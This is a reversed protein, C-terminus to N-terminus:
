AVVRADRISDQFGKRELSLALTCKIKDGFKCTLLKREAETVNQGGRNVTVGVIQGNSALDYKVFDYAKGSSKSKGAVERPNSVVLYENTCHM